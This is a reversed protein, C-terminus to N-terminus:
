RVRKRRSEISWIALFVFLWMGVIVVGSAVIQMTPWTWFRYGLVSGDKDASNAANVIHLIMVPLVLVTAGAVGEVVASLAKGPLASM